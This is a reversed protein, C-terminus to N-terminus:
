TKSEKAGKWKVCLGIYAKPVEKDDTAINYTVGKTGVQVPSGPAVPLAYDGTLGDSGYSISGDAGGGTGGVYVKSVEVPLDPHGGDVGVGDQSCNALWSLWSSQCQMKHQDKWKQLDTKPVAATLVQGNTGNSVVQGNSVVTGDKMVWSAKGQPDAQTCIPSAGSPMTVAPTGDAM